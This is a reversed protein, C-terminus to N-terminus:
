STHEESREFRALLRDVTVADFLDTAYEVAGALGGGQEWLSLTLDFKATTGAGAFPRLRLDRIELSEVPANQLVFMVQFLPAQALSREPSLEQVLKEFPVDQHLHAALATERTRGLLARFSPEGRQNRSMEGRLVLTNVFFGILEETEVRNRGAVPSGVAFDDQGSARALLAQFAALLVMYLTAGEHRALAAALRVPRTTGRYSQVLPRPRDTPLSLHPPLGALQRRWFAIEADLVEGHLWSHQWVAFDAYQVPLEPLLSPLGAAFRPYLATIERVLIGVSWADSA